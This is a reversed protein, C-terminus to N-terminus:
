HYINMFFHIFLLVTNVILFKKKLVAGVAYALEWALPPILATAASRCWLWLLAPDKVWQALGPIWDVDACLCFGMGLGSLWM